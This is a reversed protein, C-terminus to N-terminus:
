PSSYKFSVAGYTTGATNDTISGGVTTGFASFVLVAVGTTTITTDDDLFQDGMNAELTMVYYTTAATLTIPSGLAVYKFANATAGSTNISVQDVVSGDSAAIYVTHTGSNGSLVWRGIHTVTINSVGVLINCGVTGTYNSRPTGATVTSVWATGSPAAVPAVGLLMQQGPGAVVSLSALTLFFAALLRKM